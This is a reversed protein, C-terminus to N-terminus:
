GTLALLARVEDPLARQKGRLVRDAEDTRGCLGLLLPVPVDAVRGNGALAEPVRDDDDVILRGIVSEPMEPLGPAVALAVRVTISPDDALAVLNTEPLEAADARSAVAARVARNRDGALGIAQDLPLLTALAERAKTVLRKATALTLDDAATRAMQEAVDELDDTLLRDRAWVPLDSRRALPVRCRYDGDLLIELAADPLAAPRGAAGIGVSVDAHRCADLLLDDPLDARSAAAKWVRPENTAALLRRVIPIGVSQNGALAAWVLMSLDDTVIADIEADTLDARRAFVARVQPHYDSRVRDRVAAPLGTRGAINRRTSDDPDAALVAVVPDPLVTMRSVRQRVTASRSRALRLVASEPLDTRASLREQVQKSPDDALENIRAVDTVSAAERVRENFTPAPRPPGARWITNM